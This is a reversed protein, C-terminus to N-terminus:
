GSKGQEMTVYLWLDVLDQSDILQGALCFTGQRKHFGFTGTNMVAVTVL